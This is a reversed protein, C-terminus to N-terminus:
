RAMQQIPKAPVGAVVEGADVSRTVVAGAGIVANAGIQVGKLIMAGAGIWVNQGITV